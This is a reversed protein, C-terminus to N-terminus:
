LVNGQVNIAFKAILNAGQSLGVICLMQMGSTTFQLGAQLDLFDLPTAQSGFPSFQVDCYGIGFKAM